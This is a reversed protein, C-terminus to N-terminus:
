TRGRPFLQHFLARRENLVGQGNIDNRSFAPQTGGFATYRSWTLSAIERYGRIAERRRQNGVSAGVNDFGATM